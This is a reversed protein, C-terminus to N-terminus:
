TRKVKAIARRAKRGLARARPDDAHDLASLATEVESNIQAEVALEAQKNIEAIESEPLGLIRAHEDTLRDIHAMISDKLAPDTAHQLTKAYEAIEHAVSQLKANQEASLRM